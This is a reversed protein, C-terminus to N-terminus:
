WGGEDRVREGVWRLHWPEHAAGRAGHRERSYTQVIGFEAARREIWEGAPSDAIAARLPPVGPTAVDATTGLHHESRGPAASSRQGPDREVAGRYLDRQYAVSRYASYIGLAVGDSAAAAIMARFAELAGARLEMRRWELGPAKLSDPVPRLDAPRWGAPITRGAAMGERGVPLEDDPDDSPPRDVRAAEVWGGDTAIWPVGAITAWGVVTVSDGAAREGQLAAERAPWARLPADIVCLLVDGPAPPKGHLTFPPAPPAGGPPQPAGLGPAAILLLAAALNL